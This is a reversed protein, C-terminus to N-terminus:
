KKEVWNAAPGKKIRNTMFCFSCLLKNPVPYFFLRLGLTFLTVRFSHLTLIAPLVRVHSSMM